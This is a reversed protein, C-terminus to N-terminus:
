RGGELLNAALRRIPRNEEIKSWRAALEELEPADLYSLAKWTFFRGDEGEGAYRDALARGISQGNTEEVRLVALADLVRIRDDEATASELYRLLVPAAEEFGSLGLRRLAVAQEELDAPRLAGLLHEMSPHPPAGFARHNLLAVAEQGSEVFLEALAESVEDAAGFGANYRQIFALFTQGAEVRRGDAHEAVLSARLRGYFLIPGFPVVKYEFYSEEVRGSVKWGKSPDNTLVLGMTGAEHDMSSTLLAGLDLNPSYRYKMERVKGNKKPFRMIATDSPVADVLTEFYIPDAESGLYVPGTLVNEGLERGLELPVNEILKGAWAPAALMLLALSALTALCLNSTKTSM